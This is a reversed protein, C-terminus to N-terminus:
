LVTEDFLKVWPKGSEVDISDLIGAKVDNTVGAAKVVTQDDLWFVVRGVDAATVASGGSTEFEFVGKRVRIELDGAAGASNDVQEEAIGMTALGAVDAAAVANGLADSCIGAGAFLKTTAAVKMNISRERDKALTNKDKTLATM